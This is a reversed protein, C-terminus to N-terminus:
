QKKKENDHKFISGHCEGTTTAEFTKVLLYFCVYILMSDKYINGLTM